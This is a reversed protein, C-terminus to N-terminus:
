MQKFLMMHISYSHKKEVLINRNQNIYSCTRKRTDLKKGCCFKMEKMSIKNSSVQFVNNILKHFVIKVFIFANM